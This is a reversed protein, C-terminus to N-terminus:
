GGENVRMFYPMERAGTARYLRLLIEKTADPMPVCEGQDETPSLITLTPHMERYRPLDERRIRAGIREGQYEENGTWWMVEYFDYLKSRVARDLGNQKDAEARIAKFRNICPKIDKSIYEARIRLRAQRLRECFETRQAQLDNGSMSAWESMTEATLSCRVDYDLLGWAREADIGYFNKQCINAVKDFARNVDGNFISYKDYIMGKIDQVTPPIGDKHIAMYQSIADSVDDGDLNILAARWESLDANFIGTIIEAYDGFKEETM